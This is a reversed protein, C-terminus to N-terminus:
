GFVASSTNRTIRDQGEVKVSQVISRVGEQVVFTLDALGERKTWCPHPRRNEPESLREEWVERCHCGHDKEDPGSGLVSGEKFPLGKKLEATAWSKNGQFELTRIRIQPGENVPFVIKATEQKADPEFRPANIKALYYGKQRYYAAAEEIVAEPRSSVKIPM